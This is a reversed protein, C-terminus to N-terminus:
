RYNKLVEPKPVRGISNDSAAYLEIMSWNLVANLTLKDWAAITAYEPLNELVQCLAIEVNSASIELTETVNVM